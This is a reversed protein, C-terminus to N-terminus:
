HITYTVMMRIVGSGFNIPVLIPMANASGDNPTKIPLGIHPAM